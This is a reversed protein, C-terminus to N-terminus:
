WNACSTATPYRAAETKAPASPCRGREPIMASWGFWPRPALWRASSASIRRARRFQRAVAQWVRRPSPLMSRGAIAALWPTLATSSSNRPQSRGRGARAYDQQRATFRPSGFTDKWGLQDWYTVAFSLALVDSRDAIANLDANAPPCSSCGQSQYLEIVVPDASSAGAAASASGATLAVLAAGALSLMAAPTKHPM